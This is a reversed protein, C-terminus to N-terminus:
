RRGQIEIAAATKGQASGAVSDLQGLDLSLVNGQASVPVRAAKSAKKPRAEVCARGVRVQQGPELRTKARTM